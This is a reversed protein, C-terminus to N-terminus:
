MAIAQIQLKCRTQVCWPVLIISTSCVEDNPHKPTNKPSIIKKVCIHIHVPVLSSSQNINGPSSLLRSGSISQIPLIPLMLSCPWSEREPDRKNGDGPVTTAWWCNTNHSCTLPLNKGNLITELYMGPRWAESELSFIEFTSVDGAQSGGVVM